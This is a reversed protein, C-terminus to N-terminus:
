KVGNFSIENIPRRDCEESNHPINAINLLISKQDGMGQFGFWVMHPITLRYYKKRSLEISQTLGNSMSNERDDYLVFRIEGIPVILNLVMEHHRKWAKVAGPEIMSFYAEGFGAYGEDTSKMAHLVDGGPVDIIKLPTLIVGDIFQKNM